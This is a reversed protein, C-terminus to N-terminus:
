AWRRLQRGRQLRSPANRGGSWNEASHRSSRRRFVGPTMSAATVEHQTALRLATLEQEALAGDGDKDPLSFSREDHKEGRWEDLGLEGDRNRDHAELFRRTAENHLVPRVVLAQDMGAPRGSLVRHLVEASPLVNAGTRPDRLLMGDCFKVFARAGALPEPEGVRPGPMWVAVPNPNIRGLLVGSQLALVYTSIEEHTFRGTILGRDAMASQLVLRRQQRSRGPPNTKGRRQKRPVQLHEAKWLRHIRRFNVRWGTGVLLQHVRESAYRPYSEVLRRM